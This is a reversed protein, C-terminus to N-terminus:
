SWNRRSELVRINRGEFGKPGRAVDVSVKQGKRLSRVTRDMIQSQHLFLENGEPDTAFGYGKTDNFFTVTVVPGRRRQTSGRDFREQTRTNGGREGRESRDTRPGRENRVFRDDRAPRDDRSPRDDRNTREFRETREPRDRREFREPRDRREFREGREPRDTRGARPARDRDRDRGAGREHRPNTRPRDAHPAKSRTENDREETEQILARIADLTPAPEAKVARGVLTGMTQTRAVLQQPESEARKDVRPTLGLEKQMRKTKGILDPLIISVVTGTEGARGTRGSRHIYDESQQPPDYHIVCPLAEIHIGRAAVDTAVLVDARGDVVAALAKDRQSQSRDGHIAVARIKRQELQHALRDAGHKTKCFVIARSHENVLDVVTNVRDDKSVNWFYHNVESPESDGVVDHVAPDHTFESVLSRVENGLTASFLMVHRSPNTQGILRRVAPAFGMDAMRDAEDVVVTTVSQLDLDDQELLDELRGPCAVIIDVGMSLARRAHKYSTGGYVTIIRRGRDSTLQALEKQVQAALERTPVLVLGRPQYPEAKPTRALLALGFALTKGSGTPARGVIDRGALADPLSAAQIPFPSDIGRDSLRKVLPRPVGLDAFSVSM